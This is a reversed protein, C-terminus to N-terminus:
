LTPEFCTFFNGALVAQIEDTSYGLSAMTDAMLTVYSQVKGFYQPGDTAFLSKSVLEREKIEQLVYTHMLDGPEVDQGNEDIFLPRNIASLELWVNDKTSALHLSSEIARMDGQGAHGLVFEVRGQGHSGDYATIVAELSAPDYFHPENAANPFPTLGTHLLVPVGFKAAVDYVELYLPDDFGVAQHAHALKIGVFLDPRQIFYSELAALRSKRIRPNEFNEFDISAMGWAWRSGDPNVNRSDNLLGEIMRNEAYGTTKTTYTALLVGHAVGAARLHEQIGVHQGYPDVVVGSTSPFTLLSQAPLQSLFFAVGSALQTEVKGVHLHMDVVLYTEGGHEYLPLNGEGESPSTARAQTLAPLMEPAEPTLSYPPWVGYRVAKDESNFEVALGEEEFYAVPESEIGPAGWREELEMRSLGLPVEGSVSAGPLTSVARVVADESATNAESSTFLIELALDNYRLNILRQFGFQSDPEGLLNLVQELTM